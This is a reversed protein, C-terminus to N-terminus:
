EAEEIHTPALLLLPSTPNKPVNPMPQDITEDKGNANSELVDIHFWPLGVVVVFANWM